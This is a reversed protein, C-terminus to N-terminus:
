LKRIKKNQKKNQQARAELAVKVDDTSCHKHTVGCHTARDEQTHPYKLKSIRNFKHLLQSNKGHQLTECADCICPHSGSKSAIGKCSGHPALHLAFITTEYTTSGITVTENCVLFILLKRFCKQLKVTGRRGGMMSKAASVCLM